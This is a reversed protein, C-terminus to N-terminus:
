QACGKLELAALFSWLYVTYLLLVATTLHYTNNNLIYINTNNIGTTTFGQKTTSGASQGFIARREM